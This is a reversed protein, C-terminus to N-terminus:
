VMAGAPEHIERLALAFRSTPALGAVAWGDAIRDVDRLPPLGAVRLGLADLRARQRAATRASSMPVGLFVAPDPEHLGIAWFGGDVARGLVADVGPSGLARISQGLLAPTVQPTDMGVLLSPGGVDEFAAGLREDLGGGRQPVVEFGASVWPGPDGDLALVRRRVGSTAVVAALTDALAAEALASAQEPTCPPCLRTKSRGPAPAKAIVILNM